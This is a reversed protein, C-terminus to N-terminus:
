GRRGKKEPEDDVVLVPEPELVPEPAVDEIVPEPEAPEPKVEPEADVPPAGMSSQEGVSPSAGEPPFSAGAAEKEALWTKAGRETEIHALAATRDEFEGTAIRRDADDVEAQTLFGEPLDSAHTQAM